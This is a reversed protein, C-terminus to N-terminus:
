NVNKDNEKKSLESILRETDNLSIQLQEVLQYLYSRIQEIQVHLPAKDNVNPLRLETM